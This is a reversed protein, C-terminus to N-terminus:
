ILTRAWRLVDVYSIMGRLEGTDRDLVPVAGVGYELMVDIAKGLSELHDVFVFDRNMADAIPRALMDDALQQNDIEDVIPLRYERVDRDSVVGV